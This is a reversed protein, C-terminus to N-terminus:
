TCDLETECGGLCAVGGVLQTPELRAQVAAFPIASGARTRGERVSDEKGELNAVGCSALETHDHVIREGTNVPLLRCQGRVPLVELVAGDHSDTSTERKIELLHESVILIEVRINLSFLVHSM